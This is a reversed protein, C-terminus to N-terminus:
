AAEEEKELHDLIRVVVPLAVKGILYVCIVTTLCSMGHQVLQLLQQEPSM